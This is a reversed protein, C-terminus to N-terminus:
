SIKTPNYVVGSAVLLGGAAVWWNSSVPNGTMTLAAVLGMVIVAAALFLVEMRQFLPTTIAPTTPTSPVQSLLVPVLPQPNPPPSTQVPGAGPTPNVDTM